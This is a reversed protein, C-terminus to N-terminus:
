LETPHVNKPPLTEEFVVKSLQKGLKSSKKVKRGTKPNIIYEDEVKEVVKEEVKEVVTEEVEKSGSGEEKVDEVVARDRIKNAVEGLDVGSKEAAERIQALVETKVIEAFHPDKQFTKLKRVLEQAKTEEDADPNDLRDQNEKAMKVKFNEVRQNKEEKTQEQQKIYAQYYDNTKKDGYTVDLRKKDAYKNPPIMKYEYMDVIWPDVRDGTGVNQKMHAMAANQDPFCGRIKIAMTLEDHIISWARNQVTKPVRYKKFIAELEAKPQRQTSRCEQTTFPTLFSVLAVNQSQVKSHNPDVMLTMDVDLENISQAITRKQSIPIDKDDVENYVYDGDINKSKIAVTKKQKSAAKAIQRKELRMAQRNQKKAEM